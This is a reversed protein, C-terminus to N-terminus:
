AERAPEGSRARTSRVWATFAEVANVVAEFRLSHFLDFSHHAGPLEAYVVPNASVDRLKGAFERAGEVFVLPDLDGHILFMPPAHPGVYALPSSPLPSTSTDVYGYYGYLSVAATVSTDASEFGPQFRPDNQTLAAMSALHGGASSGSVFLVDPDAGYEHAHERAWAIVKKVDILPDPLQHKPRLRYNASVCLWGQSALRYVLPRGEFDKRGGVYGGGHMYVLIPGGAPHSRHRYVDLLNRKGADGYPINALREVDRRRVFLPAFLIRAIPLGQRLRAALAPDIDARWNQGLAERLARDLAPGARLGRVVVVALGLTSLVCLGFATWGVPTNLDGQGATLLTAALLFYFALFPLENVALGFRFTIANLPWPRRPAVVAFFVCWAVLVAPILYGIPM